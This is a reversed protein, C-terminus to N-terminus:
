LKDAIRGFADALKNLVTVLSNVHDKRQERDLESNTNQAELQSTLLRGNRELAEVLQHQLNTEEDGDVTFRKRKRGDHPTGIEPNSTPAKEHTACIILWELSDSGM